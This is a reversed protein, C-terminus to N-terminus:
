SCMYYYRQKEEKDEKVDKKQRAEAKEEIRIEPDGPIEEAQKEEEEAPKEM